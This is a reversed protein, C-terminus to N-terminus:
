WRPAVNARVGVPAFIRLTRQKRSVQTGDFVPPFAQKRSVVGNQCASHVGASGHRVAAPRLNGTLGFTLWAHVLTSQLLDAAAPSRHSRTFQFHAASFRQPLSSFDPSEACFAPRRSAASKKGGGQRRQDHGAPRRLDAAQLRHRSARPSSRRVRKTASMLRLTSNLAYTM